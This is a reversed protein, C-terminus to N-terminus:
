LCDSVRRSFQDKSLSMIVSPHHAIKGREHGGHEEQRIGEGMRYIRNIGDEGEPIEAEGGRARRALSGATM